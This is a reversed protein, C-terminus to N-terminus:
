RIVEIELDDSRLKEKYGNPGEVYGGRVEYDPHVWVVGKHNRGGWKVNRRNWRMEVMVHRLQTSKIHFNKVAYSILDDQPFAFRGTSAIYEEMQEVSVSSSANQIYRMLPNSCQAINLSNPNFGPSMERQMLANYLLAM